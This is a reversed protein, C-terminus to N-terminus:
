FPVLIYAESEAGYSRAAGVLDTGLGNYVFYLRRKCEVSDIFFLITCLLFLKRMLM